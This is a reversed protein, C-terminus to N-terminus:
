CLCAGFTLTRAKFPDFPEAPVDDEDESGTEDDSSESESSENESSTYPCYEADQIKVPLLAGACATLVMM